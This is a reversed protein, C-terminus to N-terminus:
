AAPGRRWPQAGVLVHAGVGREVRHAERFAPLGNGTEDYQHTRTDRAARCLAEVIHPPTPRDPDGIGLDILDAGKALMERKIRALEAFPYPPTNLVREAIQLQKKEKVVSIVCFM